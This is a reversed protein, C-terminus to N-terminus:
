RKRLLDEEFYSCTTDSVGTQVGDFVFHLKGGWSNESVFDGSDNSRNTRLDGTDTRSISDNAAEDHRTTVATM